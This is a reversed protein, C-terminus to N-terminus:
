PTSGTCFIIGEGPVPETPVTKGTSRCPVARIEPIRFGTPCTMGRPGRPEVFGARVASPDHQGVRRVIEISDFRDLGISNDDKASLGRRVVVRRNTLTYRMGVFPLVRYFYLALAHPISLLALLNGLRFIYVDPWRISYLSGLFRGSPYAAISPWVTMVTVEGLEPPAVGAIPQKM